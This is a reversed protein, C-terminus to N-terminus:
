RNAESVVVVIHYSISTVAGDEARFMEEALLESLLM